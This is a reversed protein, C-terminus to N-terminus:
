PPCDPIAVHICEGSTPDCGDATCPDADDCGPMGGARCQGGQCADGVTCANGDDCPSGDPQSAFACGTTGCTDVTCANADDCAADQPAHTCTGTSPDCADLTCAVADDCDKAEHQCGQDVDCTDLTCADGDSCDVPSGPVCQADMQQCSACLVIPAMLSPLATRQGTAGDVVDWGSIGNMLTPEVTVCTGAGVPGLVFGDTCCDFWLTHYTGSAAKYYDNSASNPDDLFFVLEAGPGSLSLGVEGGSGDNPKDFIVVVDERGDPARHLLLTARQSVEYGTAASASYPVGYSYFDLVDKGSEVPVFPVTVGQQFVAFTADLCGAGACADGDTCADGDDCTSGAAQAAHACWGSIPNCTDATCPNGDDCAGDPTHVCGGADPACADGTCPDADACAADDPVHECGKGPTCSDATCDVGDDCTPPIGAACLPLAVDTNPGGPTGHDGAGYTALAHSWAAPDSAELDLRARELAEGPLAEVGSGWCVTEVLSGAADHLELCDQKPALVLAGTAAQARVGGNFSALGSQAVVYFAGPGLWLPAASWLTVTSATSGLSWGALDVPTDTPNYLEVWQGLGPAAHTPTAMVESVVVHDVALDPACSEVGDCPDGDSCVAAAAEPDGDDIVGNCDDDFGNCPDAGAPHAQADLPACDAVDPTGDGDTDAACSDPCGDGDADVGPPLPLGVSARVQVLVDVVDVQGSCDVDAAASPYGAVALCSPPPGADHGLNWLALESTCVVDVVDVTGSGDVDLPAGGCSAPSGAQAATRQAIALLAICLARAFAGALKRGIVHTSVSPAHPPM